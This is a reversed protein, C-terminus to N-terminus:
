FGESIVYGNECELCWGGIVYEQSGALVQFKKPKGLNNDEALQLAYNAANFSFDCSIPLKVERKETL